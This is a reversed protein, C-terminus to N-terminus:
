LMEVLQWHCKCSSSRLLIRLNEDHALSTSLCKSSGAVRECKAEPLTSIMTVSQVEKVVSSEKAVLFSNSEGVVM